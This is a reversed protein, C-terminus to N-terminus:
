CVLDSVVVNNNFQIPLVFVSAAAIIAKIHNALEIHTTGLAQVTKWDSKLVDKFHEGESLFGKHSRFM